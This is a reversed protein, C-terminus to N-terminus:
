ITFTGIISFNQCSTNFNSCEKSVNMANIKYCDKLEFHTNCDSGCDGWKEMNGYVDNVTSCWANVDGPEKGDLTCGNYLTGRFKFPFICPKGPDTGGVTICPTASFRGQNLLIM